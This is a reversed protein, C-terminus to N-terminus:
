AQFRAEVFFEALKPMSHVALGTEAEIAAIVTEIRAADETAIVFWMNLLHDRAYNHAVEAHANVLDAVRDFDAAPVSIAALTTAGGLRDANYMPGFRSLWGDRCLRDIRDILEDEGIGLAAAAEAFPREVVPFGGQLGNVIRRDTEDM